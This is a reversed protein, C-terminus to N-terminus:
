ELLYYFLPEVDVLGKHEGPKTPPALTHGNEWDGIGRATTLQWVANQARRRHRAVPRNVDRIRTPWRRASAIADPCPPAERRRRGWSGACRDPGCPRRSWARGASSSASRRDPELRSKSRPTAARGPQELRAGRVLNSTGDTGVGHARVTSHEPGSAMPEGCCRHDRQGTYHHEEGRSPWGKARPGRLLVLGSPRPDPLRPPQGRRQHSFSTKPGAIRDRESSAPRVGM